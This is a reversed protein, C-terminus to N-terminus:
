KKVVHNRPHFKKHINSLEKMDIKLYRQTANLSSHGLLDQITRLDVGDNLLHSAFSHRLAHPTFTEDLNLDLRIKEVMRQVVRASLREGKEGFFLPISTIEKSTNLKYSNKYKTIFPIENIYDNCLDVINPLIPVLREKQGKGLIRLVKSSETTPIDAINVNLVETIRLGCGYILAILAKNRKKIWKVDSLSEAVAISEIAFNEAVPRPLKDNPKKMKMSKLNVFSSSDPNLIKTTQLFSFFSRIASLKRSISSKTLNNEHLFSLFGRFDIVELKNLEQMGLILGFHKSLFNFFDSLDITYAEVTNFSKREIELMHHVFLKCTKKVDNYASIQDIYEDVESIQKM